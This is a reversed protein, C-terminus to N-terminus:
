VGGTVLRRAVAIVTGVAAIGALPRIYRFLERRVGTWSTFPTAGTFLLALYATLAPFVPLDVIVRGALLWLVVAGAGVGGPLRIM